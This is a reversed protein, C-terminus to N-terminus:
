PLSTEVWSNVENDYYWGTSPAPAVYSEIRVDAGTSKHRIGGEQAEILSKFIQSAQGDISLM